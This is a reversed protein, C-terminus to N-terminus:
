RSAPIKESTTLSDAGRFSNKKADDLMKSQEEIMQIYELYLLNSLGLQGGSLVASKQKDSLEKGNITRIAAVVMERQVAEFRDTRGESVQPVRAMAEAYEKSNLTSLVIEHKGLKITRTVRGLNILDDFDTLEM